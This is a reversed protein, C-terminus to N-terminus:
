RDPLKISLLMRQAGLTHYVIRFERQYALGISHCALTPMDLPCASGHHIELRTQDAFRIEQSFRPATNSVVMAGVSLLIVILTVLCILHAVTLMRALATSRM